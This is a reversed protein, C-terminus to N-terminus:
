NVDAPEPSALHEGRALVLPRSNEVSMHFEQQREMGARSGALVGGARIETGEDLM